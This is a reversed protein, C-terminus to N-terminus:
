PLLKGPNMRGDPDFTRWAAALVALGLRGKEGSLYPRHDLGVGHQHSITGGGDVIARSAAQKLARWRALTQDPDRTRRFVVTFYLNAGDPYGHSVHAFALVREGEATLAGRLADLVGEAGAALSNWTFASEVTDLAFGAEWLSNRLYPTQFRSRRWLEGIARGIPLGGLRPRRGSRGTRGVILLCRGGRYGLAELARGAWATLRPRGVLRLTTETELADGLRLMSLDGGDQASRRIAELGEDWSRYVIAEFREAAPRPRVRVVARTLIGLRGESGLVLQRLDPGAASAPFVPLDLPGAPTEVHGGAFLREIRGYFAAQQGTSRTAIWGGLTSYEFSQPFHGLTLGHRALQQEIQPGSAGAGFTALRSVPDLALLRSMRRLDITLVPRDGPLPNVHGVVSTGGGYPIVVVDHAAAFRLLDAVDEDSGPYAVADPFAELRGHRLAVWDPLSQGRAHRLRDEPDARILGTESLRPPPVGALAAELPVDPIAAGPGLSSELFALGEASLPYTHEADGWGNWRRM